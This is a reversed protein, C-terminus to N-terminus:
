LKSKKKMYNQHLRAKLMSNLKADANRKEEKETVINQLYLVQIQFLRRGLRERDVNVCVSYLICTDNKKV